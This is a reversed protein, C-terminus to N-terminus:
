RLTSPDGPPIPKPEWNLKGPSGPPAELLTRLEDAEETTVDWTRLAPSRAPRAPAWTALETEARALCERFEEAGEVFGFDRELRVLDPGTATTMQIWREYLGKLFRDLEADTQELGRYVSDRWTRCLREILRFVWVAEALFGEGDRCRMAAEHDTRWAEEFVELHRQASTFGRETASM